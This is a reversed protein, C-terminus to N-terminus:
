HSRVLTGKMGFVSRLPISRRLLLEYIALTIILSSLVVTIMKLVVCAQWQVVYFAIAIIVPQHLLYFPVIAEQGYRTWRNSFDLFRMGIYLMFTSFCWADVAAIGWFLSYGPTEPNSFLEEANGMMLTVVIGIFALIGVGLELWRDRRLAQAFRKDSFIVYGSLFFYLEFFFDAWNQPDPFFPRFVVQIILPVSAFLLIGGRRECLGALKSIFGQGKDRLWILMPLAVLSFVFLFILFWLHYGLRDSITPNWGNWRELMSQLYSGQYGESQQTFRWDFYAQLPTLLASGILYPIFLRRFRESAFQSASRRQLAFWTGAGALLFFFPMGWPALFAVFLISAIMSIQENKILFDGATFAKTAHFFFVMLVALVRLVDLYHVRKVEQPLAHVQSAAIQSQM